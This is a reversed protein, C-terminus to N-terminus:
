KGGLNKCTKQLDDALRKFRSGITDIDRDEYVNMAITMSIHTSAISADKECGVYKGVQMKSYASKLYAGAISINEKMAVKDNASAFGSVLIMMLLIKRM